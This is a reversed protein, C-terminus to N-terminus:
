GCTLHALCLMIKCIIINSVESLAQFYFSSYDPLAAMKSFWCVCNQFLITLIRNSCFNTEKNIKPITNSEVKCLVLFFYKYCSNNLPLSAWKIGYSLIKIFLISIFFLCFVSDFLVINWKYQPPWKWQHLFGSSGFFDMSRDWTVSL